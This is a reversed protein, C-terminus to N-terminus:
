GCSVPPGPVRLVLRRELHGAASVLASAGGWCVPCVLLYNLTDLTGM